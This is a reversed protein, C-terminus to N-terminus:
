LCLAPVTLVIESVYGDMTAGHALLLNTLEENGDSSM